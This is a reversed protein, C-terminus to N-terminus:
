TKELSKCTNVLTEFTSLPVIKINNYRAIESKILFLQIIHPDEAEVIWIFTHELSSHYMSIFKLEKPNIDLNLITKRSDKNFLPCNDLTHEGYVGYLAV